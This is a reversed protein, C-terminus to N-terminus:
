DTLLTSSSSLSGSRLRVLSLMTLIFGALQYPPGQYRHTEKVIDKSPLLSCKLMATFTKAVLAGLRLRIREVGM